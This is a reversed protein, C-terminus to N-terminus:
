WERAGGAYRILSDLLLFPFITVYITLYFAVYLWNRGMRQGLEALGLKATILSLVFLMVGFVTLLDPPPLQLYYRFPNIGDLLAVAIFLGHNALSLYLLWVLLSLALMSLPYSIIFLPVVFWGFTGSGSRFMASRYKISCQIGGVNWRIRQRWWRSWKEPVSTFAVAPSMVIKWGKDLLRWAIEIDETMNRADFGGVKLLVARRYLAFPGPTAYIGQIYESMRRVWAIMAYELQQLRGLLGSPMLVFIKSTVAAVKSDSFLPVSKLLAEEEPYSDSDVIVVIEGKALRLGTNLAFAKGVVPESVVHAGARRALAATDDSSGNDIVMVEPRSPYALQLLNEVTKRVSDGANRAPVLISVTPWSALKPVRPLTSRNSGWLLLFLFSLYLAIVTFTLYLVDTALFSM